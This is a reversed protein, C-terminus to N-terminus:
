RWRLVAEVHQVLAAPLGDRVQRWMELARSPTDDGPRPVMVPSRNAQPSSEGGDVPGATTPHKQDWAVMHETKGDQFCFQFASINGQPDKWVFLEARPHCLWTKEFGPADQKVPVVARWDGQLAAVPAALDPAAPIAVPGTTSGQARKPDSM